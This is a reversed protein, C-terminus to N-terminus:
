LSGPQVQVTSVKQGCLWPPGEQLALPFIQLLLFFSPLLEARITLEPLHLLLQTVPSASSCGPFPLGRGSLLAWHCRAGCSCPSGRAFHLFSVLIGLHRPPSYFNSSFGSSRFLGPFFGLPQRLCMQLCCCLGRHDAGPPQIDWVGPDIVYLACGAALVWPCLMAMSWASHVM